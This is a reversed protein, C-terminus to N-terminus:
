KKVKTRLSSKVNVCLAANCIFSCAKKNHFYDPLGLKVGLTM